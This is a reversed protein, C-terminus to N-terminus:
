ADIRPPTHPYSVLLSLAWTSHTCGGDSGGNDGDDDLENNMHVGRLIYNNSRKDGVLVIVSVVQGILTSLLICDDSREMHSIM